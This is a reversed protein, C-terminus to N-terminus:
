AKAWRRSLAAMLKTERRLKDMFEQEHERAYEMSSVWQGEHNALSPSQISLKNCLKEIFEGVTRENKAYQIRHEFVDYPNRISKKNWKAYVAGLVTQIAQEVDM